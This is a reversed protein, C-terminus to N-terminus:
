VTGGLVNQIVYVTIVGTIMFSVVAVLSRVSLRSLGCIGHGSTCGSGLRTGFGVLLGAVIYAGTSRELPAGFLEPKLLFLAVGGLMMGAIFMARWSREEGGQEFFGAVIGSIGAIRGNFALLVITSVGIILGGALALLLSMLLPSM